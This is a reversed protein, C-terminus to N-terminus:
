KTNSYQLISHEVVRRNFRCIEKMYDEPYTARRTFCEGGCSWKAICDTCESYAFVNHSYLEDFRCKDINVKGDRIEGYVCEGFRPELPSSVLHCVSIKGSPTLVFKGPCHRKTIGRLADDFTFRLFLGANDALAKAKQYTIFFTDYFARLEEFSAFLGAATVPEMTFQSVFPYHEIVAKVIEEMRGVSSPTITTNIMVTLGSTSLLNLASRVKDYRGRTLNQLDELVDFSVGIRSDHRKLFDIKDASVLTGNTIVSLYLDVDQARARQRAYEIARSTTEWTALPEGGGTIFISLPKGDVRKRDVFWDLATRLQEPDIVTRNRGSASYCYSCSLNCINNPILSLKTTKEIPEDRKSDIYNSGENLQKIFDSLEKDVLADIGAVQLLADASNRDILYIEEKLPAFLLFEGNNKDVLFLETDPIKIYM